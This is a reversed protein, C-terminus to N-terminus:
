DQKEGEETEEEGSAAADGEVDESSADSEEEGAEDGESAPESEDEFAADGDSEDFQEDEAAAMEDDRRGRRRGRGKKEEKPKPAPKEAIVTIPVNVVVESHLKVEIEHSGVMKIPELLLVQKRDLTFGKEGFAAAIDRTTISGFTKGSEGVKLKFELSVEALKTGLEEAVGKLRVKKANVAQLRHNLQNAQKSTALLAIGSPILFNRAFGAKVSVKDGVYGLQPFDEQLIIEM